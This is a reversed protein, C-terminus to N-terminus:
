NIMDNKIAITYNYESKVEKKKWDLNHIMSFIEVSILFWGYVFRNTLKFFLFNNIESLTKWRTVEENQKSKPIVILRLIPLLLDGNLM